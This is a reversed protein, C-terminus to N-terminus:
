IDPSKSSNHSTSPIYTAGKVTSSNWQDTAKAAFYRQLDAHKQKYNPDQHERLDSVYQLYEPNVSRLGQQTAADQLQFPIVGAHPPVVVGADCVAFVTVVLACMATVVM